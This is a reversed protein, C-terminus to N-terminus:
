SRAPWGVPIATGRCIAGPYPFFFDLRARLRMESQDYDFWGRGTSRSTSTRRGTLSFCSSPSYVYATGAALAPALYGGAGYLTPLAESTPRFMYRDVSSGAKVQRLNKVLATGSVWVYPGRHM